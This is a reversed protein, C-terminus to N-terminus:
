TRQEFPTANRGRVVLDFRYGLCWEPQTLALDFRAILRQRASPDPISQLYM